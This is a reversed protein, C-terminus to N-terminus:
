VFMKKMIRDVEDNITNQKLVSYKSSKGCTMCKLYEDDEPIYEEYPTDFYTSQCYPCKISVEYSINGKGTARMRQKTATPKTASKDSRRRNSKSIIVFVLVLFIIALIM